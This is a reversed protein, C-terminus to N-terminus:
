FVKKERLELSQKKVVQVEDPHFYKEATRMIEPFASEQLRALGNVLDQGVYAMSGTTSCDRSKAVDVSKSWMRQMSLPEWLVFSIAGGVTCSGAFTMSSTTAGAARNPFTPILDIEAVLLLDAQKKEPFSMDEVKAFPGSVTFGNSTFYQLLSRALAERMATTSAAEGQEAIVRALRDSYKPKVIAISVGAGSGQKKPAYAYTPTYAPPPPPRTACGWVLVAGVISLFKFERM